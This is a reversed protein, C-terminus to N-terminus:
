AGDAGDDAVGNRLYELIDEARKTYAGIAPHPGSAYQLESEIQRTALELAYRRQLIQNIEEQHASAEARLEDELEEETYTRPAPADAGKVPRNTGRPKTSKKTDHKAM